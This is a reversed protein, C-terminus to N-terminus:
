GGKRRALVEEGPPAGIDPQLGENLAKTVYRQGESIREVEVAIADVSHQLQELRSSEDPAGRAAERRARRRTWGSLFIGLLVFALAEFLLANTMVDRSVMEGFPAATTPVEQGPEVGIGRALSAAIADDAQLIEQELRTAREDLTRIRSELGPRAAADADGLQDSVEERREMVSELQEGLEARKAVLADLEDRTRPVDPVTTPRPAQPAQPARPQQNPPYDRM